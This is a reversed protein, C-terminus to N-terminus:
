PRMARRQPAQTNAASMMAAQLNAADSESNAPAQSAENAKTILHGIAVSPGALRGDVWSGQYVRGRGDVGTQFTVGNTIHSTDPIWTGVNRGETSFFQYAFVGPDSQATGWPSIRSPYSEVLARDALEAGLPMNKLMHEVAEELSSCRGARPPKRSVTTFVEAGEPAVDDALRVYLRPAKATSAQKDRYIVAHSAPNRSALSEAHRFADMLNLPIADKM